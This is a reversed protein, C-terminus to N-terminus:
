SFYILQVWALHLQPMYILCLQLIPRFCSSELGLGLDLPLWFVDNLFCVSRGSYLWGRAPWASWCPGHHQSEHDHGRCARGHTGTATHSNMNRRTREIELPKAATNAKYHGHVQVDLACRICEKEMEMKM